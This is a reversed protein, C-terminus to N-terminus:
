KPNKVGGGISDTDVGLNSVDKLFKETLEQLREDEVKENFCVILKQM